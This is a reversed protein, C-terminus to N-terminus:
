MMQGRHPLIQPLRGFDLTSFDERLSLIGTKPPLTAQDGQPPPSSGTYTRNSLGGHVTPEILFAVQVPEDFRQPEKPMEM